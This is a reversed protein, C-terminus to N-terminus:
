VCYFSPYNKNQAMERSITFLVEILKESCSKLLLNSQYLPKFRTLSKWQIFVRSLSVDGFFSLLIFNTVFTIEFGKIPQFIESNSMLKPRRLLLPSLRFSFQLIKCGGYM